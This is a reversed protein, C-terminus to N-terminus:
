QDVGKAKAIAERAHFIEPYYEAWQEEPYEGESRELCAELAELLEPAAAILRANAAAEERPPLNRASPVRQAAVCVLVGALSLVSTINCASVAWPGKTYESM